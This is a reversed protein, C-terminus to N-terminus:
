KASDWSRWRRRISSGSSRNSARNVLAPSLLRRIPFSPVAYGAQGRANQVAARDARVTAELAVARTRIQEYQSQAVFGKRVLEEYRAAERRANELEAASRALNAEAQRVEAEMQRADITFLLDGQRVDQGEELGARVLLGRGRVEVRQRPRGRDEDVARVTFDDLAGLDQVIYYTTAAAAQGVPALLLMAILAASLFRQANRMRNM